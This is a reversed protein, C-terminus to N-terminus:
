LGLLVAGFFFFLGMQKLNPLHSDGGDDEEDRVEIVAGARQGWEM